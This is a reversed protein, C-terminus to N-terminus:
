IRSFNRSHLIIRRGEYCVYAWTCYLVLRVTTGEGAKGLWIVSEVLLVSDGTQPSGLGTIQFEEPFPHNRGEHAIDARESLVTIDPVGRVTPIQDRQRWSVATAANRPQDAAGHLLVM